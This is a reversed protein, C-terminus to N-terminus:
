QKSEDRNWGFRSRREQNSKLFAKRQEPTLKAWMEQRHRKIAEAVKQAAEQRITSFDARLHGYTSRLQEQQEPTAQITAFDEAMRRDLWREVWQGGGIPVSGRAAAVRGSVAVGCVNGLLFLGTLCSVVKVVPSLIM